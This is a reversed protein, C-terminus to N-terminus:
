EAAAEVSSAIDDTDIDALASLADEMREIAEQMAQGKEGEQLSEPLNDHADQEEDRLTELESVISEIQGQLEQIRRALASLSKRRANNM